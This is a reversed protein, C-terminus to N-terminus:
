GEYDKWNTFFRRAYDGFGERDKGMTPDYRPSLGPLRPGASGRELLGSRGRANLAGRGASAGSRVRRRPQRPGDHRAMGGAGPGSGRAVPPGPQQDARGPAPSQAKRGRAPRARAQDERWRVANGRGPVGQRW